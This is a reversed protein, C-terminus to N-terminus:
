VEEWVPVKRTIYTTHGLAFPQGLHGKGGTQEWM